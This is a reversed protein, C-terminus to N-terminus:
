EEMMERLEEPSPVVGRGRVLLELLRRPLRMLPHGPVLFPRDAPGEDSDPGEDDSSGGASHLGSGSPAAFQDTGDAAGGGLGCVWLDDFHPGSEWGGFAVFLPAWPLLCAAGHMKRPLPERWREGPQALPVERLVAAVASIDGAAARVCDAGELVALGRRPQAGGGLVLIQGNLGACATHHRGPVVASACHPQFTGLWSWSSLELVGVDRLEDAGHHELINGTGGGVVVLYGRGGVEVVTASHGHRPSPATGSATLSAEQWRWTKLDLLDGSALSRSCHYTHGGWVLVCGEPHSRGDGALRAPVYSATHAGRRLPVAAGDAPSGTPRPKGWLVLSQDDGTREWLAGVAWDNHENRYGGQAGGFAFVLGDATEAMAAAGFEAAVAAVHGPSPAEAGLWLETLTQTGGRQAPVGLTAARRFNLSSRQQSLAAEQEEEAEEEEEEESSDEEREWEEEESLVEAEAAAGALRPCGGASPITRPAPVFSFPAAAAAPVAPPAALPMAAACVAELPVWHLDTQPGQDSWGGYCFLRRGKPGVFLRPHAVRDGLGHDRTQYCWTGGAARCARRLQVYKARWTAPGGCPDQPLQSAGFELSCRARWWSPEALAFRVPRLAAEARAADAGPLFSLVLDQFEETLDLLGFAQGGGKPSQM